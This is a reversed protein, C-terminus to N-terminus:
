RHSFFSPYTLHTISMGYILCRSVRTCSLYIGTQSKSESSVSAHRTELLKWSLVRGGSRWFWCIGVNGWDAGFVPYAITSNVEPCWSRPPHGCIYTLNYWHFKYWYLKWPAKNVQGPLADALNGSHQRSPPKDDTHNKKAQIQYGILATLM